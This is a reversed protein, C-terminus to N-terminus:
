TEINPRYTQESMHFSWAVAEKATTVTPPVRLFYHRHTGDAEMTSNIVLVMMLPEDNIMNKRYLEGCEDKSILEANSDKLFRSLGYSAMLMQRVAVNSENEIEEVTISEPSLVFKQPLVIGDLGYVEYGDEYVVSPGSRSSLRGQDDLATSKPYSGVFCVDEFFVFWPASQLLEIWADLREALPSDLTFKDSQTKLACDWCLLNSAQWIGMVTANLNRAAVVPDQSPSHELSELALDQFQSGFISLLETVVRESRAVINDFVMAAEPVSRGAQHALRQNRLASSTSSLLTADFITGIPQLFRSMELKLGFKFYNYFDDSLNHLAGTDVLQSMVSYIESLRSGTGNRLIQPPLAEAENSIAARFDESQDSGLLDAVQAVTTTLPASTKQHQQIVAMYAIYAVPSSCFIVSPARRGDHVRYFNAICEQLASRNALESTKILTSWKEVLRETQAIQESTFSDRGRHLRRYVEDEVEEATINNIQM